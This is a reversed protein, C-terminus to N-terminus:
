VRLLTEDAVVDTMVVKAGEFAFRQATALGIGQTAGKTLVRNTTLGNVTDGALAKALSGGLPLDREVSLQVASIDAFSCIAQM